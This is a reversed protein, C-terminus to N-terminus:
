SIIRQIGSLLETRFDVKKRISSYGSSKKQSTNTHYIKKQGKAKLKYTDTNLTYKEFAAHQQTM